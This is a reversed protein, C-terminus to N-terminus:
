ALFAEELVMRAAEPSLGAQALFQIQQGSGRYIAASHEAIEPVSTIRQDPSMKISKVGPACMAEFSINSECGPCGAIINAVGTMETASGDHALVRNKVFVGTKEALHDAQIHLKLDSYNRLVINGDFVSNKGTNEVFFTLFAPAINSLKATLHIKSKSRQSIVVKKDGTIEGALIIHVPLEDTNDNTIRIADGHTEIKVDPNESSIDPQFVWDLFVAGHAPFTEINFKDWLFSM